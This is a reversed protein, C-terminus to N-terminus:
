RLPCYAMEAFVNAMLAAIYANPLYIAVNALVAAIHPRMICTIAINSRMLLAYPLMQVCQYLM